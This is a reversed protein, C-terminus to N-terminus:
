VGEYVTQNEITFEMNTLGYEATYVFINDGKSLQFWAIPSDLCNLINYEKGGRLMTIGKQRKNTNITIEDGAIIGSGMIETLREDNIKMVERTGINYIALGSVDGIAHVRIIIGVEADGAYVVTGETQNEISGMILLDEDLSENGFEFEFLPETGYFITKNLGDEGASYFYPNPCMISIQCEEQEEFIAPENHEVTGTTVCIRRDTEILFQIKRKIPFYKYSALRCDEILRGKEPADLFILSMVINRSQLRSSNDIAGDTTALETFNVDAKAPGLGTINKIIFGSEEPHFLDLVISENLHNTITVSKIM